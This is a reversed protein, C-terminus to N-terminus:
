LLLLQPSGKDTKAFVSQILEVSWVETLKRSHVDSVLTEVDVFQGTLSTGHRESFEARSLTINVDDTEACWEYAIAVHKGTSNGEDFYIAGILHLKDPEIDLRLEEKLERRACQLLSAGNAQDEKRVHGGAWIVVKKDLPNSRDKEQRHLRLIKGSANRVVVVPLAQIKERDDEVKERSLYTGDKVFAQVLQEATEPPLYKKKDFYRNIESKPLFLIEENIHEEILSLVLDLTVEATKQPNDKTEGSSTDVTHIRFSKELRKACDLNTQRIQKLVDKNMISGKTSKVPLYGEERKMSDKPSATMVIVASLRKCWDEILLFQEIIKQDKENIRNLKKMMNMWCISDFIGRDLILIDPDGERPPEQTKELIQALTTCVTWVNFNPHQKDRIPCISAREVVVETQFGCRKLFTQISNLTTTKGAKPVGAFEIVIPKRAGTKFQKAAREARQQFDTLDSMGQQALGFGIKAALFSYRGSSCNRDSRRPSMKWAHM